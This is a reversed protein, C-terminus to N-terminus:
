YGIAQRFTSYEPYNLLSDPINYSSPLTYISLDEHYYSWHRNQIFPTNLGLINCINVHDRNFKYPVFLQLIIFLILRCLLACNRTISDRIFVCRDTTHTNNFLELSFSNSVRALPTICSAM